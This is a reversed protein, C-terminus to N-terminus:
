VGPTPSRPQLVTSACIECGVVEYGLGVISVSFGFSTGAPLRVALGRIERPIQLARVRQKHRRVLSVPIIRPFRMLM